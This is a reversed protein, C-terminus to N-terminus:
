HLAITECSRCTSTVVLLQIPNKAFGTFSSAPLLLLAATRGALPM